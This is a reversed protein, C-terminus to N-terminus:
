DENLASYIADEDLGEELMVYFTAAGQGAWQGVRAGIIDWGQEAIVRAIRYAMGRGRPARIEIAYPNRGQVEVALFQQRRDSAKGSAVLLESATVSGAMVEKLVGEVRRATAAPIPKGGFSVSFSDLAVAKSSGSTTYARITHVSLDLAYLAGLLETLLGQRDECAITIESVELARQHSIEVSPNGKLAAEVMFYHMKVEAPGHRYLYDAPLGDLFASLADSDIPSDDMTRMFRTRAASPDFEVDSDSELVRLTQRYLQQLFSELAPTMSEESVASTDAWTLLTLMTLKVPDGVIEAFEYVTEPQEIDKLRVIRAMDLHHLVLWSVLDVTSAYLKLRECVERAMDYGVESHSRSLDSKGVDHLLIALLLPTSDQLSRMLEGFFPESECQELIQVARLTHEYVTFRHSSDRPMLTRCEALEPLLMELLGARDLNRLVREGSTLVAVAQVPSWDSRVGVKLRPIELGLKTAHSIGVAAEGATADGSVRVEGQIAFVSKGLPFHARRVRDLAEKYFEDLTNLAGAVKSGFEFPDQELLEAIEQRKQYTLTDQMKGAVLHVINRVELVKDFARPPRKAREGIAAGIWTAAHVSRLGGAGFKLNPEVMLPSDNTKAIEQEREAIKELLFEAGYIAEQLEEMFNEYTSRDGALFRSDHMATRMRGDLGALDSPIVFSYGVRLGLDVHLTSQITRYLWKAYKDVQPDTSERAILSVDVDSFPALERRGYGGTAVLAFEPIREFEEPFHAVITRLLSDVLSTYSECWSLGRPKKRLKELLSARSSNFGEQFTSPLSSM